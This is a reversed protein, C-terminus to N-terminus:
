YIFYNYVICLETECNVCNLRKKCNRKEIKFDTQVIHIRHLTSLKSTPSWSLQSSSRTTSLSSRKIIKQPSQHFFIGSSSNLFKCLLETLLDDMAAWRLMQINFFNLNFAQSNTKDQMLFGGFFDKNHLKGQVKIILISWGGRGGVRWIEGGVVIM